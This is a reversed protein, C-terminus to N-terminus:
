GFLQAHSGIDVLILLNEEEEIKYILLLDPAIHCECYDRLEGKLRHNKHKTDLKKEIAIADIVFELKERTKLSLGSRSIKRFSKEFDKTRKILFAM